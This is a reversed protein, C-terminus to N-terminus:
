RSIPNDDGYICANWGLVVAVLLHRMLCLRRGWVRQSTTM